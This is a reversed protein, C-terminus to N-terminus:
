TIYLIERTISEQVTKIYGLGTSTFTYTLSSRTSGFYQEDNHKFLSIRPILTNYWEDVLEKEAKNLSFILVDTDYDNGYKDKIKQLQEDHKNLVRQFSKNSLLTLSIVNDVRFSRWGNRDISFVALTNVSEVYPKNKSMEYNPIFDKDLTIEMESVEGSVKNFILKYVGCKLTEKFAAKAEAISGTSLTNEYKDIVMQAISKQTM